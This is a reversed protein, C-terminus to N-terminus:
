DMALLRRFARREHVRFYAELVQKRQPSADAKANICLELGLRVDAETTGLTILVAGRTDRASAILTEPADHLAEESLAMADAVLATDRDPLQYALESLFYALNSKAQVVVDTMNSALAETLAERSSGVADELQGVAYYTLSRFIAVRVLQRPDGKRADRWEDISNLALRLMDPATRISALFTYLRSIDPGPGLQNKLQDLRSGLTALRPDGIDLSALQIRNDSIEQALDRLDEGHTANGSTMLMRFLSERALDRQRRDAYWREQIADKILESQDDLHQLVDGLIEIHRRLAQDIDGHPKYTLDHTKAGWGDHLMTKIQLEAKEVPFEIANKARVLLHVAHYGRERRDAQKYVEFHKVNANNIIHGALTERDSPFNVVITFGIIDHIDSIKASPHKLRWEYLKKAIKWDKKLSDGRQKDSRSYISYILRSCEPKHRIWNLESAVRELFLRYGDGHRNLYAKVEPLLIDWEAM